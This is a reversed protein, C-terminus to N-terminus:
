HWCCFDVFFILFVSSQHTFLDMTSMTLIVPMRVEISHDGEVSYRSKLYRRRHVAYYICENGICESQHVSVCLKIFVRDFLLSSVEIGQSYLWQTCLRLHVIASLMIMHNFREFCTYESSTLSNYFFLCYRHKVSNLM